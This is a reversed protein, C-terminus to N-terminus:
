HSRQVTITLCLHLQHLNNKCGMMLINCKTNIVQIEAKKKMECKVLRMENLHHLWVYQPMYDCSCAPNLMVRKVQHIIIIHVNNQWHEWFPGDSSSGNWLSPSLVQKFLPLFLLSSSPCLQSSLSCSFQSFQRTLWRVNHADLSIQYLLLISVSAGKVCDM